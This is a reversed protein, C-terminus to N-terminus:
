WIKCLLEINRKYPALTKYVHTFFKDDPSQFVKKELDIIRQSDKFFDNKDFM